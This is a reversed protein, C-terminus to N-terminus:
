RGRAPRPPLTWDSPQTAGARRTATQARRARALPTSEATAARHAAALYPQPQHGYVDSTRDLEASLSTSLREADRLASITDALDGPQVAVVRGAGGGTALTVHDQECRALRRQPAHVSQNRTWSETARELLRALEPLQNVVARLV